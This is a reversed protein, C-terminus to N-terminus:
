ESRLIFSMQGGTKLLDPSDNDVDNVAPSVPTAILLDAPAPVLLKKLALPDPARPDMWDDADRDALIVPMRDHYQRTLANAATTLITFTTEWQDPKPRWSEYLGALLLLQNDERHFWTPQRATKPGTWEFFGDAPVVCRRKIFAERFTPRTNVTEARANINKAATSATKAWTNVLGWRAPLVERNEFKVRVVYHMQTPAVNYRPRYDVFSDAAVGLEAALMNGDRRTITFRGCM